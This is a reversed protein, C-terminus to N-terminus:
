GCHCRRSLAHFARSKLVQRKRAPIRCNRAHVHSACKRAHVCACKWAHVHFAHLRAHLWISEIVYVMLDVSLVAQLKQLLSAFSSAMNRDRIERDERERRERDERERRDRIERDERERRERDERERRDREERERRDERDMLQLQLIESFMGGGEAKRKQFLPLTPPSENTATGKRIHGAWARLQMDNLDPRTERLKTVMEDDKVEEAKSAVQTVKAEGKEKRNVVVELLKKKGECAKMILAVISQFSEENIPYHNQKSDKAELTKIVTAAHLHARVHIEFAEFSNTPVFIGM